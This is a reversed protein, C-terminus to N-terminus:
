LSANSLGADRPRMCRAARKVLCSSRISSAIYKQATCTMYFSRIVILERLGIIPMKNFVPMM